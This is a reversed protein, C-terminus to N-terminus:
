QHTPSPRHYKDDDHQWHDIDENHVQNLNGARGITKSRKDSLLYQGFSILDKEKYRRKHFLTIYVITFYAVILIVIIWNM